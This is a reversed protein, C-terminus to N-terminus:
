ANMLDEGAEDNFGRGLPCFHQYAEAQDPHNKKPIGVAKLCPAM